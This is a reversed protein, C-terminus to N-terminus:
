EQNRFKRKTKISLMSMDAMVNQRAPNSSHVMDPHHVLLDSRQAAGTYRRAADEIGRTESGCITVSVPSVWSAELQM